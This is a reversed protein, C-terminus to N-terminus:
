AVKLGADVMELAEQLRIFDFPSALKVVLVDDIWAQRKPKFQNVVDITVCIQQLYKGVQVHANPFRALITLHADDVLIEM